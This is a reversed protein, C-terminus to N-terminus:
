DERDGKFIRVLDICGGILLAAILYSAIPHRDAFDWITTKEKGM